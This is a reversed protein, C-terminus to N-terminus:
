SQSRTTRKNAEQKVTEAGSAAAKAAKDKADTAAAKADGAAKKAAPPAAGGGMSALAAIIAVLTVVVAGIGGAVEPVFKVAEIPDKQAIAIFLDVKEKIYTVPDELFDLDQPSKKKDSKKPKTAEEVAKEAAQKPVFSEKALKDADEESHGIYINDFLIDSQM